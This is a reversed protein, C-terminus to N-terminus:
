KMECLKTVKETFLDYGEIKICEEGEFTFHVVWPMLGRIKEFDEFLFAPQYYNIITSLATGHSGIVVNQNEYIKLVQQLASINRAQVENM